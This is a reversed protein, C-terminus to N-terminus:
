AFYLVIISLKNGPVLWAGFRVFAWYNLDAILLINVFITVIPVWPVCPVTTSFTPYNRPQRTLFIVAALAFLGSIGGSLFAWLEDNLINTIVATFVIALCSLSIVLLFVAFSANSGSVKSPEHSTKTKKRDFKHKQLNPTDGFTYPYTESDLSISQLWQDTRELQAAKSHVVDEAGPQYRTILVSIAVMTYAILTGISLVEIQFIHICFRDIWGDM